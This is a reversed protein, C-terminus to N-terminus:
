LIKEESFICYGSPLGEFNEPTLIYTIKYLNDKGSRIFDSGDIKTYHILDGVKYNRDNKRIEWLKLGSRKAKYFTEKIKINHVVM